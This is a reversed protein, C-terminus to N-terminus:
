IRMVFVPTSPARRWQGQSRVPAAVENHTGAYCWMRILLHVKVLLLLLLLLQLIILGLLLMGVSLLEPVLMGGAAVDCRFAVTCAVTASMIPMIPLM